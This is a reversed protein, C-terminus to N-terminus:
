ASNARVNRERWLTYLGSGVIIAAGLLTLVDPREEFVSIGIILAFLIRSYRFPTVFSVEGVRMAAVIGYYAVIGILLAITFYVWNAPSLPVLSTGNIWMLLAAAPILVLFALFSLQMTSTEQPVRRTALDRIGLGIVGQVAFLSLWSFGEMGPRIIMLVGIFGVLIASWRRWGVAEQLFLAAGLTVFLPTAQLIASASSLPTLAIATVFGMTGILEGLARLAIAPTLMARTFLPQRQVILIVSVLAASGLGLMGIIQGVPLAAAMLKILMDEIAFGLMAVVMFTAGRLNDM